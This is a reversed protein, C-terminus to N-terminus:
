GFAPVAIDVRKKGDLAPKAKSFKVTWRADRDKQRLKTPKNKWAEPVEGAKIAAKEEETTRQKPAAVVTADM